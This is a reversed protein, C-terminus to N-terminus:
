HECVWTMGTDDCEDGSGGGLGTDQSFKHEWETSVSEWSM